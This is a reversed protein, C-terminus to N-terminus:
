QAGRKANVPIALTLKTGLGKRTNVTLTGGLMRSRENLSALGLGRRAIHQGMIETQDFGKGKDQIIIKVNGETHLIIVRVQHANAHKRINNLAEQFIRYIIVQDSHEFLDDIDDMKLKVEIDTHKQFDHLLWRLSGCLKLDQIISPSLDRSLRRTDEIIKDIFKLTKSFEAKLDRQDKRLQNLLTNFQLKLVALNQGLDDHIEMSIRRREGEQAALLQRSLRRLSQELQKPISIDGISVVRKRTGPLFAEMFFIDKRTGDKTRIRCETLGAPGKNTHGKKPRHLVLPEGDNHIIFHEWKKKGEVQMKTYGTLREFESNILSITMDKEVILTAATTTEFITRYMTESAQLRAQMKQQLTIDEVM